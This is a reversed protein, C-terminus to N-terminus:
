AAVEQRALQDWMDGYGHRKCWQYLSHRQMGLAEASEEATFGNDIHTRLTELRDLHAGHNYGQRKQNAASHAALCAACAPEKLTRLHRTYGSETGCAAVRRRKQKVAGGALVTRISKAAETWHQDDDRTLCTAALPCTRCHEAAEHALISDSPADFLAWFLEYEGDCAARAEDQGRTPPPTPRSVQHHLNTM